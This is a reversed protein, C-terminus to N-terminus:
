ASTAHIANNASVAKYNKNIFSFLGKFLKLEDVSYDTHSKFEKLIEQKLASKASKRAKGDQATLQMVLDSQEAYVKSLIRQPILGEISQKGPKDVGVVYYNTGEKLSLQAMNRCIENKADLDFTVLTNKFKSLIFKLLVTNKIADKGDYPVIEIDNPLRLGQLGLSNIHEIYEKDLVGEVLVVYEGEQKLVSKWSEFETNDLGLITSFPSMWDDESLEVVETQMLKNRVVKRDLLINSRYNSQCLMYPSHTTVITQIKLENALDRLVRGFEAQASPHLFSEPEEIIVIPTIRNEDTENSGIRNAQLISVMIQTRNRTGSGWDNLPVEVNKDKLNIGFPMSRSFFGEPITFEVEYKDELHGLLESLAAKHNKAIKQVRTRIKKQEAALQDKEGESFMMEHFMRGRSAIIGLENEASNHMFALNSNLLKQHIETSSFTEIPDGGVFIRSHTVNDKDHSIEVRLDITEGAIKQDYFKEIFIFLGPDTKKSVSIEYCFVIPDNNKTWQTKEESYNLEDSERFAFFHKTNDRFLDRVVKVLSTKGANNQGSIASFYGEFNVVVDELTRYNKVEIKEIRM